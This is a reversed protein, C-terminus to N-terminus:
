APTPMLRAPEPPEPTAPPATQPQYHEMDEGQRVLRASNFVVILSGVNHLLAAVIPSLYGFASASWGGIIFFVGFLINQNIVSRTMRSLRILFPLRRLDNNMLAITASHIAVESGAAGMAIGMDGAALAPADNVGDGVVAVRYGRVKMQRVFEVKNQPLCEAVVEACGIERAVRAAVPKRDGTVMAICRVGHQMLAALSERAEARTEDQLGVWGICRKQRAVFILSYGEAEDLDVSKLFDETIGCDKLWQARGVIIPEGNVRAQIGRGATETFDAPESLPVGAQAALRALAKATPHNSYKEASAALRLLEAPTTGNLPALRSVILTGETLTGTKDFVFCDAKSLRELVEGDKFLVGLRAARGTGVLIATPTALGLACPCAVLLVAVPALLLMDSEPDLIAWLILTVLATAMVIPVFVGAVRDALRQIPAKANQADRVMRIMRALVTGSGVRTVAVTIGGTVNVTGGIVADSSKKVVPVAEGTFMSEDVATQGAIIVGDAPISQGPRVVVRDGISLQHIDVQEEGGSATLRAATQPILSVMGTAADRAEQTAKAELYRGLLIFTLIMATTEYYVAPASGAHPGFLMITAALSYVLASGSGLAILSNMNTQRHLLRQLADKFFLRGAYLVPLTLLLQMVASVRHSIMLLRVPHQGMHLLFIVATCAAAIILEQRLRRDSRHTDEDSVHFVAEYGIAKIDNPLRDRDYAGDILDIQGIQTAFNIKVDAIGPIKRLGNELTAVCAACRLNLIDVEERVVPVTLGARKIEEVAVNVAGSHKDPRALTFQIRATKLDVAVGSLGEIGQLRRTLQDATARGNLGRVSIRYQSPHSTNV